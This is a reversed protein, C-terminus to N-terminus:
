FRVTLDARLGHDQVDSAIQGQYSLSFTTAPTLDVDFGLELLAADRAIPLGSIEFADMGAFALRSLPTVDGYVHRWGIMGRLTAEISGIPLQTSARLGLTSFTIDTNSSGASLAASGGEEAFRDLHLNAYSLSAFPELEASRAKIRYGLEGFVQATGGSYDATLREQSGTFQVLRDTSIDHWSYSAGTRLSLAGFEAGGYIGLHINDISASAGLGSEDISAHSYGALIGLRTRDGIPADGGILLGGLSRDVGPVDDNNNWDAWSGFGKGWVAFRETSAADPEAGDPGYALIPVAPAALSGFAAGLRDNMADRVFRSDDLLVSAVSVHIEGPLQAITLPATAADLGLLHQVLPHDGAPNQAIFDDISRPMGSIPRRRWIRFPLITAACALMVNNPDYTLTPDLFLLNSSVDLFQTGNLGGAASLITYDTHMRWGGASAIVDVHGGSLTAVGSVLTRDNSGAPDVEV